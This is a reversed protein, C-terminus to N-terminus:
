LLHHENVLQNFRAIGEEEPASFRYVFRGLYDALEKAPVGLSLAWEHAIAAHQSQSMGLSGSLALQLEKKEQASVDKRIAWVAFVCPLHQWLWWEFALDIEFPYQTNTEQFRLAEDGILLLADGTLDTGRRYAAPSLQYRHELLLRLLIASTSTEETLAIAAGDLQRIPKRSFLMVSRARGRVAIGFPGLREFRDQLRLFDILPLLGAAVEGSAAQRGMERPVTTTLEFREGLSLGWFFPASNLYPV